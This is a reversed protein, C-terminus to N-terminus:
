FGHKLLIDQYEGSQRLVSLGRNFREMVKGHDPKKRSLCLYQMKSELPPDMWELADSYGPFETAIIYFALKKDILTLDIRGRILKMLNQKDFAVEETNLKAENFGKPNAYGRCIGIKYPRLDEWTKFSIEMGRRKFFGIENPFLPDSYLFYAERERTHWPPFMGDHEGARAKQEGRVWPYFSITVRYGAHHFARTIIESVPGYNKLHPGFYPPYNASSLSIEGGPVPSSSFLLLVSIIIWMSLPRM